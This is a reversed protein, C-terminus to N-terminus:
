RRHSDFSTIRNSSNQINPPSYEPIQIKKKSAAIISEALFNLEEESPMINSVQTQVRMVQWGMPAVFSKAHDACLDYADPEAMPPLPGIVITSDAYMYTFAVEARNSCGPKVCIRKYSM